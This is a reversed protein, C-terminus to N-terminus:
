APVAGAALATRWGGLHTVDIPGDPHDPPPVAGPQGLFGILERGDSTRVRGLGLPAPVSLLLQGLAHPTLLWEEGALEGGTGPAVAYVLPRGALALMRYDPATGVPGVWRAGLRTLEHHLPQGRLHAGFVLVPVGTPVLPEAVPADAPREDETLLAALDLAVQDDFARALVSLGAEGHGTPGLPVAVGCLDFLNVFNTFVGLRANTGVPDAAVEALTPHEPATPLVLADCGDLEALATLRLRAVQDRDHLYQAATVAGAAAAIGAVTPDAGEAHDALYPGYAAYREAVLGGDYLLRAAALFATLDIERLTVGRHALTQVARAFADRVAPHVVALDAPRPVAVVPAPPAALRVDAPWTRASPDAASAAIMVALARRALALDGALVTVCDYSACAPVVGDKPVLGLTPKIGVIRNFAAPVRGSGATDTALALDVIGLAVAAASGSSSGGSVREPSVASAVAGYPSRSGTLGTAFQDLNTKGLVVAGASRLLEVVTASRAAPDRRAPHAATTPLGAVDINDKVALVTGALPLAAGDAVARDVARADAEVEARPRVLTWVEPRGAAALADFARAVRDLATM